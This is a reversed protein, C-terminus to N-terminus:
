SLLIFTSSPNFYITDGSADLGYGVIRVVQGATTPITTQVKGETPHLYLPTGITNIPSALTVAGRLLMGQSSNTGLAVALMGEYRGDANNDAKYWTPDGEGDNALVYIQGASTSVSSGIFTVDGEGSGDTTSQIRINHGRSREYNQM